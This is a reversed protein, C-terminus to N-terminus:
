CNSQKKLIFLMYVSLQKRLIYPDIICLSRDIDYFVRIIFWSEKLFVKKSVKRQCREKVGKKSVQRKVDRYMDMYIVVVSFRMM